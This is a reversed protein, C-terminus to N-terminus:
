IGRAKDVSKKINKSFLESCEDFYGAEFAISEMVTEVGYIFKDSGNKADYEGRFLPCGLLKKYVIEFAEKEGM